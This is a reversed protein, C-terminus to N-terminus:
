SLENEDFCSDIMMMQSNSNSEQLGEVHTNGIASVHHNLSDFHDNILNLFNISEDSKDNHRSFSAKDAVAGAASLNSDSDHSDSLYYTSYTSSSTSQHSNPPPQEAFNFHTNSSDPSWNGNDVLFEDLLHHHHHQQQLPAASSSLPQPDSSFLLLTEGPSDILAQSPVRKSHLSKSEFLSNM